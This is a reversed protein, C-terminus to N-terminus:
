LLRYIYALGLSICMSLSKREFIYSTKNEALVVDSSFPKFDTLEMMQIKWFRYNKLELIVKNFSVARSLNARFKRATGLNKQM